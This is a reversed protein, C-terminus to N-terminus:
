NITVTATSTDRAGDWVFIGDDLSIVEITYVGSIPAVLKYTFNVVGRNNSVGTFVAKLNGDKYLYLKVMAASVRLPGNGIDGMVTASAGLHTKGQQTLTLKDVWMPSTVLGQAHIPLFVAVILSLALVLLVMRKM